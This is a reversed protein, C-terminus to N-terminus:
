TERTDLQSQDASEVRFGSDLFRVAVLATALVSPVWLSNYRDPADLARLSTEVLAMAFSAGTLGALVATVLSPRCRRFTLGGALLRGGGAVAFPVRLAAVTELAVAAQVAVIGMGAIAIGMSRLLLRCLRAVREDVRVSRVEWDGLRRARDPQRM